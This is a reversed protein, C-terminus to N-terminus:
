NLLNLALLEMRNRTQFADASSQMERMAVWEPRRPMSASPEDKIQGLNDWMSNRYNSTPSKNELRNSLSNWPVSIMSSIQWSMVLRKSEKKWRETWDSQLTNLPPPRRWAFHRERSKYELHTILITTMQVERLHWCGPFASGGSACAPTTSTFMVFLTFMQLCKYVNTLM